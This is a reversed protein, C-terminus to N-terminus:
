MKTQVMDSPEIMQKQLYKKYKRITPDLTDYEIMVEKLAETLQETSWAPILRKTPPTLGRALTLPPVQKLPVPPKTTVLSAPVRTVSEPQTSTPPQPQTTNQTVTEIPSCLLSLIQRATNEDFKPHQLDDGLLLKAMPKFGKVHSRVKYIQWVIFGLSALILLLSVMLIILVMNPHVSLPYLSTFLLHYM